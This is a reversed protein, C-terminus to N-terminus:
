PKTHFVRGSARSLALKGNSPMDGSIKATSLLNKNINQKLRRCKIKAFVRREGIPVNVVYRYLTGFKIM